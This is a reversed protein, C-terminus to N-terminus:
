IKVYAVTDKLGLNEWFRIREVFPQPVMKVERDLQLFTMNKVDQIPDWIKIEDGEDTTYLPEGFTVFNGILNTMVRSMQYDPDDVSHGTYILSNNFFYFLDEAHGVGWEKSTFGALNALNYKGEYSFFYAYTPAIESHLQLAKHTGLTFYRDTAMDSIKNMHAQQPTEDKLYFKTIKERIDDTDEAIYNFDLFYKALNKWNRTLSKLRFVMNLMFLGTHGEQSTQTSIWPKAATHNRAYSEEPTEILFAGPLDPEVTPGFLVPPFPLWDFMNLQNGVLFNSNRTQICDMLAQSNETPCGVIKALKDTWGRAREKSQFSWHNLATASLSVGSQFYDRTQNSIFHLHVSAAGASQGMLTVRTKDGGFAEINEHVWKIALAQDKLGYNGPSVEDNTSMFGLVGLRYNLTVLIVDQDLMYAPGQERGAGMIYSGGHIHVIVPLSPNVKGFPLEPTFVNLFLCDENGHVRFARQASLQLCDSGPKKAQRVGTWNGFPVPAKFRRNDIPAEAYPIGEFAFIKRGGITTSFYGDLEGNKVTVKPEIEEISNSSDLSSRFGVQVNEAPTPEHYKPDCPVLACLLNLLFVSTLVVM